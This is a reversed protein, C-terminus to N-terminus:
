FLKKLDARSVQKRLAGELTGDYHAHIEKTDMIGCKLGNMYTESDTGITLEKLIDIFEM